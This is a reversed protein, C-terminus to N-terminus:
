SRRFTIDVNELETQFDNSGNQDSFIRCRDNIKESENSLSCKKSLSNIQSRANQFNARVTFACIDATKDFM